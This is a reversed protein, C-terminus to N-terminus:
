RELSSNSRHRASLHQRVIRETSSDNDIAHIVMHQARTLLQLNGIGDRALLEKEKLSLDPLEETPFFNDDRISNIHHVLEDKELKRGLWEEVLVAHLGRNHNPGSTFIVYGHNKGLGGKWNPHDKGKPFEIAAMKEREEPNAFRKKGAQSPNRMVGARKCIRWIKHASIEYKEAVLHVSDLEEYSLIIDEDSLGDPLSIIGRNWGWGGLGKQFNEKFQKSRIERLEPNREYSQTIWLSRPKKLGLRQCKHTVASETRGLIQAMESCLMKMHNDQLFTEEKSTWQM